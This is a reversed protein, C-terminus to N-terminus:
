RPKLVFTNAEVALVPVDVYVREGPLDFVAYCNEPDREIQICLRSSAADLRWLGPIVKNTQYRSRVEVGGGKLFRFRLGQPYADDFWLDQRDARDLLSQIQAVNMARADSPPVSSQSTSACATILSLLGLWLLRFSM